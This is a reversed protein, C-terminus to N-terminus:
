VVKAIRLPQICFLLTCSEDTHIVSSATRGPIVIEALVYAVLRGVEIGNAAANLEAGVSSQDM